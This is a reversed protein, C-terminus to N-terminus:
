NCLRCDSIQLRFDRRNGARKLLYNAFHLEFHFPTQGSSGDLFVTKPLPLGSVDASIVRAKLETHGVVPDTNNAEYGTLVYGNTTRLLTPRVTGQATRLETILLDKNIAASVDIGSERFSLVYGTDQEQLVFQDLKEPILWTLMFPAWSMLFGTASLEVGKALNDMVNASVKNPKPGLIRHIVQVHGYRDAAISFRLRSVLRMATTKQAAPLDKFISQWNPTMSARVEIVGQRRLTSYANRTDELLKRDDRPAQAYCQVQAILLAVIVAKPTRYGTLAKDSFQKLSV